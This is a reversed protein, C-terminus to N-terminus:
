VGGMKRNALILQQLKPNMDATIELQKPAISDEEINDSDGPLIFVNGSEPDKGLVVKLGHQKFRGVLEDIPPCYQPFEEAVAKLKEYADNTIGSFPFSEQNQALEKALDVYERLSREKEPAETDANQQPLKPPGESM